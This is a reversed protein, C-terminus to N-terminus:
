TLGAAAAVRRPPPGPSSVEEGPMSALQIAPTDHHLHATADEAREEPAGPAGSPEPRSGAVVSATYGADQVDM